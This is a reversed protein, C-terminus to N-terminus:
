GNGKAGWGQNTAAKQRQQRQSLKTDDVEYKFQEKYEIRDGPQVLQYLMIEELVFVPISLIIKKSTLLNVHAGQITVRVSAILVKDVKCLFSNM